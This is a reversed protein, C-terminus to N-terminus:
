TCNMTINSSRTSTTPLNKNINGTSLEKTSNIISSNFPIPNTPLKQKMSHPLPTPFKLLKSASESSKKKNEINPTNLEKPPTYYMNAYGTCSNKADTEGISNYYKFWALKGMAKEFADLFNFYDNDIFILIKNCSSVIITTGTISIVTSDRYSLLEFRLPFSFM